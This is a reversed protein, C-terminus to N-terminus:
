KVAAGAYGEVKSFSLVVKMSMGFAVDTETLRWWEGGVYVYAVIILCNEKTFGAPYDLHVAGATSPATTTVVAIPSGGHAGEQLTEALHSAVTTDIADFAANFDTREPKETGLGNHCTLIRHRAQM